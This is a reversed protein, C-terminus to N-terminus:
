SSTLTATGTPVRAPALLAAKTRTPTSSRAAITLQAQLTDAAHTALAGLNQTPSPLRTHTATPTATPTRTKTPTRSPIPTRTFTPSPALTGAPTPTRTPRETPIASPELTASAPPSMLVPLDVPIDTRPLIQNAVPEGFLASAVMSSFLVLALLLWEWGALMYAKRTRYFVVKRARQISRIGPRAALLGALALLAVLLTVISSASM